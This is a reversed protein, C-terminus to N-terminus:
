CGQGHAAEKGGTAAEPKKSAQVGDLDEVDCLHTEPFADVFRAEHVSALGEAVRADAYAIPNRFLYCDRMTCSVQYRLGHSSGEPAPRPAPRPTQHSDECEMATEVDVFPTQCLTCKYLM